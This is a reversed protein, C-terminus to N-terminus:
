ELREAVSTYEFLPESTAVLDKNLYLDYKIQQDLWYQASVGTAVQLNIASTVTVSVKGLTFNNLHPRTVKMKRAAEAIAIGNADLLKEKFLVGPHLVANDNNSM